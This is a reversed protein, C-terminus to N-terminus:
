PKEEGLAVHKREVYNRCNENQMVNIYREMMWM